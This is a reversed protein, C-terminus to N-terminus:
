LSIHHMLLANLNKELDAFLVKTKHTGKVAEEHMASTCVYRTCSKFQRKGVVVGLIM